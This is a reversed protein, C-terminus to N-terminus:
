RSDETGESLTELISEIWYDMNRDPVGPRGAIQLYGWVFQERFPSDISAVCEFKLDGLTVEGSDTLDLLELDRLCAAMHPFIDAYKPLLVYGASQPQRLEKAVKGRADKKTRSNTHTLKSAWPLGAKKWYERTSVCKAVLVKKVRVNVLDCSPTLVVRFSSPDAASSSSIMLVDGTLLSDGLAPHLYQEWPLSQEGSLITERDMETAIRRKVIRLLAQSQENEGPIMGGIDDATKTFVQQINAQLDVRLDNLASGYTLLEQLAEIESDYSEGKVIYKALPHKEAKAILDDDRTASTVIIPLFRIGWINDWFSIGPKNGQQPPGLFLDLILVDPSIISLHDFKFDFGKIKVEVDLGSEEIKLKLPEAYGEINDEIILVLKRDRKEM